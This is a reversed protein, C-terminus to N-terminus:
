ADARIIDGLQDALERMEEERIGPNPIRIPTSTPDSGRPRFAWYETEGEHVIGDLKLVKRRLLVLALIWRFARRRPDVEEEMRQVMELLTEDDVFMQRKEGPEPAASRWFCVLGDPRVGADWAQAAFDLRRLIPRGEEDIADILAAVFEQHPLIPQHSQACEGSFRGLEYTGALGAM